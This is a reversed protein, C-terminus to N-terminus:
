TGRNILFHCVDGDQIIYDKGETRILGQERALAEGGAKIFEEWGIVEARIFGKIFDTHIVGAALPAKVGRRVTWARTEDRGTTFFTILNLLSYASKILKDLGSQKLGLEKIYEDQENDPLQAIEEEIKINIKIVHGDWRTDETKNNDYQDNINIAYIIPKISLLGLGQIINKEEEDMNLGRAPQGSDLYKKLKELLGNLRIAEKDGSKVEKSIKGLKKEIVDLDAMILEM